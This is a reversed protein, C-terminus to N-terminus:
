QTKLAISLENLNTKAKKKETKKQTDNQANRRKKENM